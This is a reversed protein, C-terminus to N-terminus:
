SGPCFTSDMACLTNQKHPSTAWNAGTTPEGTGFGVADLMDYDLKYAARVRAKLEPTWYHTNELDTEVPGRNAKHWAVNRAFMATSESSTTHLPLSGHRKGEGSQWGSAGASEWLGKARLLQETHAQLHKFDGVFNYYPM